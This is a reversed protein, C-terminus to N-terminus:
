IDDPIRVRKLKGTFRYSGNLCLYYYGEWWYIQGEELELDGLWEQYHEWFFPNGCESPYKARVAFNEMWSADNCAILFRVPYKVQAKPKGWTDALVEARKGEEFVDVITGGASQYIM